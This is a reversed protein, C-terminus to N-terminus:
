DCCMLSWRHHDPRPQADTDNCKSNRIRQGLDTGCIRNGATLEVDEERVM